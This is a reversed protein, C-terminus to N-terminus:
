PILQAEPVSAVDAAAESRDRNDRRVEGVPLLRFVLVTRLEGNQDPAEETEYPVQPDLEFEGIYEHIKTNTSGVKGRAIFLRLANGSNRHEAISRNGDKLLQDGVRGDGTYFFM